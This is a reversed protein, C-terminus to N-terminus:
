NTIRVSSASSTRYIYRGRGELPGMSNAGGILLHNPIIAQATSEVFSSEMNIIRINVIVGESNRSMTGTLIRSVPLQSRLKKWDRTFVFDGQGTVSISGTTKYDIVPIRRITLENIFSEALTQGLWNTTSLDDLNVFSTVAIPENNPIISLDNVILQDALGSVILSLEQTYNIPQNPLLRTPYQTEYSDANWTSHPPIEAPAPSQKYIPRKLACGNLLTILSIAIVAKKM